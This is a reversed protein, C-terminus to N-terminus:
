KGAGYKTLLSQLRPDNRLGDWVPDLRLEPITIGGPIQLSRELVAFATDLDGCMMHIRARSIALIPGDFADKSEPLLDIARKAETKAEDCRGLGAYILGLLAHRPGDESSERVANEAKDRADEYNK